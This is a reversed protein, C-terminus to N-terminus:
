PSEGDAKKAGDKAKGAKTDAERYGSGYMLDNAERPTHAVVERGDPSILKKSYETM